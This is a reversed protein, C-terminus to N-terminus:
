QKYIYLDIDGHCTYYMISPSSTFENAAVNESDIKTLSETWLNPGCRNFMLKREARRDVGFAGIFNRPFFALFFFVNM